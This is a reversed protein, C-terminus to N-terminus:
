DFRVTFAKPHNISPIASTTFPIKWDALIFFFDISEYVSHTARHHECHSPAMHQPFYVTCNLSYVWCRFLLQLTSLTKLVWLGDELFLAM